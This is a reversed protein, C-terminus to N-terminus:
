IMSLTRTSAFRYPFLFLITFIIMGERIFLSFVSATLGFGNLTHRLAVFSIEM